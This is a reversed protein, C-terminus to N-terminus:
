LGPVPKWSAGGDESLLAKYMGDTALVRREDLYLYSLNYPLFLFPWYQASQAHVTKWSAGGDVSRQIDFRATNLGLKQDKFVPIPLSRDLPSDQWTKGLDRSEWTSVWLGSKNCRCRLVADGSLGANMVAGPFDFHHQTMTKTDIVASRGSPIALLLQGTSAVSQILPRSQGGKWLDFQYPHSAHWTWQNTELRGTHLTLKPKEDLLVLVEGQRAPYLGVIAGYPLNLKLETWTAGADQTVRAEAFDGGVVWHRDSLALVANVRSGIGTPISRVGTAPSYHRISGSLSAFLVDGNPLVAPNLLGAARSQAARFAAAHAKADGEIGADAIPLAAQAPHYTEIWRRFNGKDGQGAALLQAEKESAREYILDGLYSIEGSKVQLRLAQAGLKLSSSVCMLGCQQSAFSSIEYRGEPVAGFYSASGAAGLDSMAVVFKEGKRAGEIQTLEAQQWYSFFYSIGVGSVTLRFAVGGNGASFPQATAAANGSPVTATTACGTLVLSAGAMLLWRIAQLASARITQM